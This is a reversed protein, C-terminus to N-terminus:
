GVIKGDKVWHCTTTPSLPAPPTYTTCQWSAGAPISSGQSASGSSGANGQPGEPGQPGAPGSPGAPGAPGTPGALDERHELVFKRVHDEVRQNTTSLAYLSSGLAVLAFLCAVVLAVVLGYQRRAPVGREPEPTVTEASM